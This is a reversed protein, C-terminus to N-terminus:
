PRAAAMPEVFAEDSNAGLLKLIRGHVAVCENIWNRDLKTHRGLRDAPVYVVTFHPYERGDAARHVVPGEVAIVIGRSGYSTRVAMGPRVLAPVDPAGPPTVRYRGPDHGGLDASYLSHALHRPAVPRSKRRTEM